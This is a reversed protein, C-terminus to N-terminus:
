TFASELIQLVRGPMSRNFIRYENSVWIFDDLNFDSIPVAVRTVSMYRVVLGFLNEKASNCINSSRCIPYSQKSYFIGFNQQLRIISLLQFMYSQWFLSVEWDIICATNSM